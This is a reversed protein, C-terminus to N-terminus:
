YGPGGAMLSAITTRRRWQAESRSMGNYIERGRVFLAWSYEHDGNHKKIATLKKAQAETM